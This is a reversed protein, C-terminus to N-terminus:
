CYHTDFHRREGNARGERPEFFNKRAISTDFSGLKAGDTSKALILFLAGISIALLLKM